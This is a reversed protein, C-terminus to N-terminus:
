IMTDRIGCSFLWSNGNSILVWGPFKLCETRISRLFLLAYFQFMNRAKARTTGYRGKYFFHLLLVPIALLTILKFQPNKLM